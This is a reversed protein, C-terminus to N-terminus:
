KCGNCGDWWLLVKCGEANSVVITLNQKERGPTVQPTDPATRLDPFAQIVRVLGYSAEPLAFDEIFSLSVTLSSIKLISWVSFPKWLISCISSNSRVESVYDHDVTSLCSVLDLIRWSQDRGGKLVFSMQTKATYKKVAICTIHLSHLELARRFLYPLNATKALAKQCIPPEDLLVSM